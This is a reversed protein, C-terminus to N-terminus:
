FNFEFKRRKYTSEQTGQGRLNQLLKIIFKANAITDPLARHAEKLTLGVENACVSLNYNALEYWRMRAWELSDIMQTKNIYNELKLSNNSFFRAFFPNDFGKINHGSLIPM